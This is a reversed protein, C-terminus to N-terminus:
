KNVENNTENNTENNAEKNTKIVIRDNVISAEAGMKKLMSETTPDVKLTRIENIYERIEQSLECMHNLALISWERIYPNLDDIKTHNLIVPIIELKLMDLSIDRDEYAMNGLIRIMNSKYYYYMNNFGKKQRLVQLGTHKLIEDNVLAHLKSQQTPQMLLDRILILLNFRHMSTRVFHANFFDSVTAHAIVQITVFLFEYQIFSLVKKKYIYENMFQQLLKTISIGILEQLAPTMDKDEETLSLELIDLINILAKWNQQDMLYSLWQSWVQELKNDKTFDELLMNQLLKKTIQTFTDSHQFKKEISSTDNQIKINKFISDNTAINNLNQNMEQVHTKTQINNVISNSNEINNVSNNVLNSSTNNKLNEELFNKANIKSTSSDITKVWSDFSTYPDAISETNSEINNEKEIILDNELEVIEENKQYYAEQVEQTEQIEKINKIKHTMQTENVKHVDQTNISEININIREIESDLDSDNEEDSSSEEPIILDEFISIFWNQNIIGKNDSNGYFKLRREEESVGSFLVNQVFMVVIQKWRRFLTSWEENLFNYLKETRNESLDYISPDFSLANSLNIWFIIDDFGNPANEFCLDFYQILQSKLSPMIERKNILLSSDIPREDQNLDEIEQLFNQLSECLKKGDIM